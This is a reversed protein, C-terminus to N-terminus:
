GHVANSGQLVALSGNLDYQWRGFLPKIIEPPDLPFVIRRRPIDNDPAVGAPNDRWMAEDFFKGMANWFVEPSTSEVNSQAWVTRAYELERRALPSRTLIRCHEELKVLYNKPFIARYRYVPKTLYVLREGTRHLIYRYLRGPQSWMLRPAYGCDFGDSKSIIYPRNKFLRRRFDSHWTLKEGMITLFPIRFMEAEPFLAPLERLEILTDEHVIENAQINLCHSFRCRERVVNTADAIITGSGTSETWRDQFLRIQGPFIAALTNLAEWTGDSSFGDSILFEDCIPLSARIAEIFPYGQSVCNRVVMLGSILAM